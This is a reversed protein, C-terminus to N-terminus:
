EESKEKPEVYKSDLWDAIRLDNGDETQIILRDEAHDNRIVKFMIHGFVEYLVDRNTKMRVKETDSEEKIWPYNKLQREALKFDYAGWNINGAEMHIDPVSKGTLQSYLWVAKDGVITKRVRISGEAFISAGFTEYVMLVPSDPYKYDFAIRLNNDQM